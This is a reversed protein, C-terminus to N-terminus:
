GWAQRNAKNPDFYGLHVTEVDPNELYKKLAFESSSFAIENWLIEEKSFLRVEM